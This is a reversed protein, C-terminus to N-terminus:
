LRGYFASRQYLVLILFFRFVGTPHSHTVTRLRQMKRKKPVLLESVQCFQSFGVEGPFKESGIKCIMCIWHLVGCNLVGLICGECKAVLFAM